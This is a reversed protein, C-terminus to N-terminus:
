RAAPFRFSHFRFSDGYSGTRLITVKNIPTAVPTDTLLRMLTSTL